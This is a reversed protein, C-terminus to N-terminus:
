CERLKSNTIGCGKILSHKNNSNITNYTMLLLMKNSKTYM